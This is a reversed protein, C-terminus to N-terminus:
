VLVGKVVGLADYFIGYGARVVTKGNGGPDWALGFRPAVNTYDRPIGEVLNLATEAARNLETGAESRPTLEVDYRLGYNLTLRPHVPSGPDVM